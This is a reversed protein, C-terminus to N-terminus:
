GEENPYKAHMEADSKKVILDRVAARVEERSVNHNIIASLLLEIEPGYEAAVKLVEGIGQAVANM